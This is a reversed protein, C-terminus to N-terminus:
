SNRKRLESNSECCVKQVDSIHKDELPLWAKVFDIDIGGGRSQRFCGPKGKERSYVGTDWCGASLRGDALVLLCMEFDDPFFGDEIRKFGTLTVSIENNM